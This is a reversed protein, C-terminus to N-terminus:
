RGEGARWPLELFHLVRFVSHYLTAIGMEDLKLMHEPPSKINVGTNPLVSVEDPM